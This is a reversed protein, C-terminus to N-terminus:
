ARDEDPIDGEELDEDDSAEEPPDADEAVELESLGAPSEVQIAVASIVIERNTGVTLAIKLKGESAM